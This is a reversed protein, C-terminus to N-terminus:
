NRSPFLGLMSICFSVTQFPQVNTHSSGGGVPSVTQANLAVLKSPAGYAVGDPGGRTDESKCFYAGEYSASGDNEEETAKLVHTHNPMELQTLTVNEVGGKQGRSYVEGADPHVPTRGRLDPLGFTTRGDGGFATGLLSYLAQNQNIQLIQGDCLSWGRPAWNFGFMRIESIFPDAM